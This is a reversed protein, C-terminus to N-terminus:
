PTQDQRDGAVPCIPSNQVPGIHSRPQAEEGTRHPVLLQVWKDLLCSWGKDGSSDTAGQAPSAQDCQQKRSAEERLEPSLVWYGCPEWFGQSPGGMNSSLLPEGLILLTGKSDGTLAAPQPTPSDQQHGGGCM